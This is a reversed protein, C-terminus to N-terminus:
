TDTWTKGEDEDKFVSPTVRTGVFSTETGDRLWEVRRTMTWYRSEKLWLFGHKVISCSTIEWGDDLLRRMSRVTNIVIPAFPPTVIPAFPPSLYFTKWSRIPWESVNCWPNREDWTLVDRTEMRTPEPSGPQRFTIKKIPVGMTDSDSPDTM